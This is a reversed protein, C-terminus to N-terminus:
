MIVNNSMTFGDHHTSKVMEFIICELGDGKIVLQLKDCWALLFEWHKKFM